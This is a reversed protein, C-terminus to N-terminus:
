AITVAIAAATAALAAAALAEDSAQKRLAALQASDRRQVFTLTCPKRASRIFAQLEELSLYRVAHDGVFRLEYTMDVGTQKLAGGCQKVFVPSPPTAFEFPIGRTLEHARKLLAMSEDFNAENIELGMAKVLVYGVRVDDRTTRTVIVRRSTEEIGFTVGLSADTWHVVKTQSATRLRVLELDIPSSGDWTFRVVPEEHGDPTALFTAGDLARRDDRQQRPDTEERSSARKM